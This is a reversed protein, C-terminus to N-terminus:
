GSLCPARSRSRNKKKKEQTSRMIGKFAVKSRHFPLSSAPRKSGRYPRSFCRSLSFSSASSSDCRRPGSSFSTSASQKRGKLSSLNKLLSLQSADKVQTLSPQIVEEDFFNSSSPTSLLAHKVSPHTSGLLHSVFSERHM